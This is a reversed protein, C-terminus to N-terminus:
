SEIGKGPLIKLLEYQLDPKLAPDGDDQHSVADFLSNEQALLDDHQGLAGSLYFRNNGIREHAGFVEPIIESKVLLANLDAGDQIVAGMM